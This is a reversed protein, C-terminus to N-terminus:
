ASEGGTRPEEILDDIWNSEDECYDLAYERVLYEPLDYVQSVALYLAICVSYRGDRKAQNLSELLDSRESALNSVQARAVDREGAINVAFVTATVLGAVALGGAVVEIITRKNM